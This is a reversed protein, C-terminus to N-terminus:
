LNMIDRRFEQFKKGQLPKSMFDAWMLDTPCYEIEVRKKEIQDTLYFFRINLHRTRRGSSNKGNLELKMTSQNDRMIVNQKVEYGQEELFLRTWLVLSLQDDSSVIEAETSSRTNMKQKTSSSIIAGKGMTLNSGTHSKFDPHVAFAADIFWTLRGSKDSSLCLCDEKTGNLFLMMRRLKIWDEETPERVRTCLFAIATMIDPRARKTLFLGKAVMTHFEERKDESLKPSEEHVKFM